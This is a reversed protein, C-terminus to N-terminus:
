AVLVTVGDRGVVDFGQGRPVGLGLGLGLDGEPGAPDQQLVEGANRCDHVQGGHAVRHLPQATIRPLDVRELRDLQDDVVGDLDVLGPRRPGEGDVSLQLELAIALPVGEEAPALVGEVVEADDRGVGADDM